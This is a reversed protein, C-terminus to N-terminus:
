IHGKIPKYNKIFEELKGENVTRWNFKQPCREINDYVFTVDGENLADSLVFPSANIFPIKNIQDNNLKNKMCLILMYDNMFYDIAYNYKKYYANYFDVCAKMNANGKNAAFFFTTYTVPYVKGWLQEKAKSDHNISWFGYKQIYEFLPLRSFHVMTFDCWVGGFKYILNFRLIDSFTQTTILGDKYLRLIRTDLEVYNSYNNIDLLIINYDSYYRKLSELSLQQLKPLNDVGQAWFCFINKQSEDVSDRDAYNQNIDEYIYNFEKECISIAEIRTKYMRSRLFLSHCLFSFSYSLGFNNRHLKSEKFINIVKKIKNKM